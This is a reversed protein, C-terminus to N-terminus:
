AALKMTLHRIRFKAWETPLPDSPHGSYLSRIEKMSWNSNNFADKIINSKIYFGNYTGPPMLSRKKLILPLEINTLNKPKDNFSIQQLVFEDM